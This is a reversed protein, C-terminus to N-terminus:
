ANWLALAWAVLGAAALIAGTRMPKFSRREQDDGAGLGKWDMHLLGACITGFGGLLVFVWPMRPRDNRALITLMKQQIEAPDRTASGLTIPQKASLRAISVNAITLEEQHPVVIWRTSLACTRVAHWAFLATNTDSRGEATRAISILQAYAAPVHPAGPVFYSASQRAHVVADELNGTAALAEASRLEYEGQEIMRATLMGCAGVILGLLVM